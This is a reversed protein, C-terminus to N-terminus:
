VFVDLVNKNRSNNREEIYYFYEIKKETYVCKLIYHKSVFTSSSFMKFM